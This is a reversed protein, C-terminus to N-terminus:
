SWWECEFVVDSRFVYKVNDIGHPGKEVKTGEHLLCRDGHRHLLATGAVPAVSAVLKGGDSYFKTEGGAATGRLTSLYVLLTYGTYKKREEIAESDDYHRSFKQGQDYAYMRVYPNLGVARLRDKKPLGSTIAPSLRKWLKAVLAEEAPGRRAVRGCDRAAEGRSPGKSGQWEFGGANEVAKILTLCEKETLASPIVFLHGDRNHLQQPPQQRQAPKTAIDPWNIPRAAAEPPAGGSREM